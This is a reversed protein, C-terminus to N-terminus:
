FVRLMVGENDKTVKRIQTKDTFETRNQDDSLIGADPRCSLGFSWM